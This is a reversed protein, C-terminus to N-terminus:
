PVAIGIGRAIAVIGPASIPQCLDYTWSTFCSFAAPNISSDEISPVLNGLQTTAKGGSATGGRARGKREVMRAPGNNDGAPRARDM